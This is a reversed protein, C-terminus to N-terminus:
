IQQRRRGLLMLCSGLLILLSASPEPVAHLQIDYPGASGDYIGGGHQTMQSGWIPTDIGLNSVSWTTTGTPCCGTDKLPFKWSGDSTTALFYESKTANSIMLYATLGEFMSTYNSVDQINKTGTFYGLDTSNYSFQASDLVRASSSWSSINSESPVFSSDFSVLQFQYTNTLPDLPTGHSDVITSNTLSGWNLTQSTASLAGMIYFLSCFHFIRLNMKFFQHSKFSKQFGHHNNNRSIIFKYHLLRFLVLGAVM